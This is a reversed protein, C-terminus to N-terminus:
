WHLLDHTTGHCRWRAERMFAGDARMARRTRAGGADRNHVVFDKREMRYLRCPLSQGQVQIRTDATLLSNPNSAATARRRLVVGRRTNRIPTIAAMSQVM